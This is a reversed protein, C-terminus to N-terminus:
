KLKREKCKFCILSIFRYILLRLILIAVPLPVYLTLTDEIYSMVKLVINDKNAEFQATEFTAKILNIVSLVVLSASSFIDALNAIRGKCPKVYVTDILYSFIVISMLCMKTLPDMVFTHITVLLLRKVFLVGTWCLHTKFQM